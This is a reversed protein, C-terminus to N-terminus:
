QVRIETSKTLSTPIGPWPVLPTFAQTATVTILMRKPVNGSGCTSSCTIATGDACECLAPFPSSGSPFTLVPGSSIASQIVSEIGAICASGQIDAQCTSSNRAYQAGARTAGALAATRAALMGFDAIGAVMTILIPAVLAFETVASGEFGLFGRRTRRM